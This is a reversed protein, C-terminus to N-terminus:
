VHHVVDFHRVLSESAHESIAGQELQVQAQQAQWDALRARLTRYVDKNAALATETTALQGAANAHVQVHWFTPCHFSARFSWVEAMLELAGPELAGHCM